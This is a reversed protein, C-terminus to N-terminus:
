APPIIGRERLREPNIRSADLNLAARAREIDWIRVFDAARQNGGEPVPMDLVQEAWTLLQQLAKSLQNSKYQEQILQVRLEKVEDEHTM